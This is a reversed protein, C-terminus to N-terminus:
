NADDLLKLLKEIYLTGDMMEEQLHILFARTDEKSDELTTNYKEIGVASRDNYKQVVNHVIKDSKPISVNSTIDSNEFYKTVSDSM